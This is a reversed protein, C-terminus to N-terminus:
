NGSHVTITNNSGVTKINVKSDITGGQTVGITNSGGNIDVMADFGAAGGPGNQSVTVANGNGGVTTVTARAGLMNSTNSNIAINGNDGNTDVSATTKAGATVDV